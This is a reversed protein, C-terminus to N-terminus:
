AAAGSVTRRSIPLTSLNKFSSLNKLKHGAREKALHLSEFSQGRLTAEREKTTEEARDSAEKIDSLSYGARLLIASRDSVSLKWEHRPRPEDGKYLEYVDIHTVRTSEPQWGLTVPAGGETPPHNGLEMPIDRIEVSGFRLKKNLSSKQLTVEREKMTEEARDSAEKIDSLPYGARLLIATRDSVSLKWEHRPRPEDGKYLEYVDIHTVRTSEPQWGLTVPAGGETPPHNGLEM